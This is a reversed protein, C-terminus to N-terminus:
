NCGVLKLTETVCGINTTPLPACCGQASNLGFGAECQNSPELPNSCTSNCFSIQFEKNTPGTCSIRPEGKQNNKENICTFGPTLVEYTTNLPLQYLGYSNNDVCFEDLKDSAPVTCAPIQDNTCVPLPASSQPLEATPAPVLTATVVQAEPFPKCTQRYDESPFFQNWENITFDGGAISCAKQAWSEPNIDWFIIKNDDGLSAIFDGFPNFAVTTVRASHGIMKSILSPLEPNSINWLNVQMDDSGSALMTGDPSFSISNVRDSHNGLTYSRQPKPPDTINWLITTKDSGASALLAPDIPSFAISNVTNSHGELVSLRAPSAPNSVDWLVINKGAISAMFKGDANFVMDGMEKDQQPLITLQVPKEPDTIDWFIIKKGNVALIKGDPSFGIASVSNNDAKIIKSLQAFDAADWLTVINDNDSSSAMLLGDRSFVADNISGDLTETKEPNALDSIDWVQFKGDSNWSTLLNSNPQFAMGTAVEDEPFEIAGLELDTKPKAVDWLMVTGDRSSSILIDNNKDFLLSTVALSHGNITRIKKPINRNSIDWLIIPAKTEDSSSALTNGDASFALSTIPLSHGSWISSRVPAAPVSVNWLAITTDSNGLALTNGDASIAMSDVSENNGEVASLFTPNNPDAIDWELVNGNHLLTFALNRNPSLIVSDMNVTKDRSDLQSLKVPSERDAVNFLVYVNNADKNIKLSSLIKNDQAFQPHLYYGEIKSLLKPTSPDSTDWLILNDNSSSALTKGDSSFTLGEVSTTHATLAPLKVPLAPNSIDWLNVTNDLSGSALLKGDPSVAVLNVWDPHDVLVQILGPNSQLIKTIADQATFDNAQNDKAHLYAEVGLLLAQSLNQDIKAVASASLQNIESEIEKALAHNKAIEERQQSENARAAEKKATAAANLGYIGLVFMVIATVVALVTYWRRQRDAAERSKLIYERHLDTPYPNKSTNIALQTEADHLDKGRLLFSNDKNAQEWEIARVLLRSHVDVWDFDTNIGLLLKQFSEEFNDRERFFIWNLHSLEQPIKESKVDRVILPILRKGNKAAHAIEDGCVKSKVSDPSVLFLFIDSEEIGKEIKKMFDVTPPIGEWDVWFGLDSKKLEETLRKAFDIDKRSYSIFVKAM